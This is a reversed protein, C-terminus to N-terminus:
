FNFIFLADLQNWKVCIELRQVTLLVYFYLISHSKVILTHQYTFQSGRFPFYMATQMSYRPSTTGLSTFEAMEIIFFSFDIWNTSHHGVPKLALQTVNTLVCTCTHKQTDNCRDAYCSVSNAKLKNRNFTFTFATKRPKNPVATKDLRNYGRGQSKRGEGSSTSHVLWVCM